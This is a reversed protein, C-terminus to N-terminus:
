TFTLKASILPTTCMFYCGPLSSHSTRFSTLIDQLLLVYQFILPSTSILFLMTSLCQSPSSRSPGGIHLPTIISIDLRPKGGFPSVFDHSAKPYSLALHSVFQHSLCMNCLLSSSIPVFLKTCYIGVGWASWYLSILHEERIWLLFLPGWNCTPPVLWLERCIRM